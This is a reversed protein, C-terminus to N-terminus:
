QNKYQQRISTLVQQIEKKTYAFDYNNNIQFDAHQKKLSLPYQSRIKKLAYEKSIQDRQMLRHCQVDEDVWVLIVADVLSEYKKEYLLPIDLFIYDFGQSQYMDMLMKMKDKIPQDLIAGLQERAKTSSFILKGLKERDLQLDNILYERGFTDAINELIIPEQTVEKAICDADIVIYGQEKLYSTVKSKGSAIGGTIGIFYTQM